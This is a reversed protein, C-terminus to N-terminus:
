SGWSSVRTLAQAISGTVEFGVWLVAGQKLRHARLTLVRLVGQVQQQTPLRL